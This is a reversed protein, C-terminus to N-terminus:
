PDFRLPGMARLSGTRVDFAFGRCRFVCYQSCRGRARLQSCGFVATHDFWKAALVPIIHAGFRCQIRRDVWDPCRWSSILHQILGAPSEVSEVPRCLLLLPMSPPLALRVNSGNWLCRQSFTQSPTSRMHAKGLAYVGNQVSSSQVVFMPAYECTEQDMVNFLFLFLFITKLQVIPQVLRMGPKIIRLYFLWALFRSVVWQLVALSLRGYGFMAAGVCRCVARSFRTFPILFPFDQITDVDSIM